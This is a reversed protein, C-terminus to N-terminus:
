RVPGGQNQDEAGIVESEPIMTRWLLDVEASVLPPNEGASIARLVVPSVDAERKLKLSEVSVHGPFYNEILFLYHYIAVDDMAKLQIQVPSKLIKYKAKAAEPNSEVVGSLVSAVAAGVGSKEQITKFTNEAQRRSQNKFFGDDELAKFEAKQSELQDYEVQMRDIDTRLNAVEARVTRLKRQEVDQQPIMYMYVAAGLVVNLVVLLGLMLVRRFGLVTIM